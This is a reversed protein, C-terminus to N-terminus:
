FRLAAVNAHLWCRRMQYISLDTETFWRLNYSKLQPLLEKWYRKNVFSNDDAFEIFPQDWINECKGSKWFREVPKQRYNPTLLISSACFECHPSMGPQDSNDSPQIKFILCDTLLSQPMTSHSPIKQAIISRYHSHRRM